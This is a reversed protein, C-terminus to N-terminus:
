PSAAGSAACSGLCLGGVDTITQGLRPDVRGLSQALGATLQSTADNLERALGSAISAEAEILTELPCRLPGEVPLTLSCRDPPPPSSDGVWSASTAPNPPGQDDDDGDAVATGTPVDVPPSAPPPAPRPSAARTPPRVALASVLPAAAPTAEPPTPKPRPPAVRAQRDSAGTGPWGNFAVIVSVVALLVLAGAVLLGMISIGAIYGKFAQM